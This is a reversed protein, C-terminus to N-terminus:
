LNWPKYTRFHTYPYRSARLRPPQEDDFVGASLEGDPSTVVILIGARLVPNFPLYLMIHDSVQIPHRELPSVHDSRGELNKESPLTPKKRPSLGIPHPPADYKLQDIIRLALQIQEVDRMQTVDEEPLTTPEQLPLPAVTEGFNANSAPPNEAKSRKNRRSKPRYCLLRSAMSNESRCFLNSPM